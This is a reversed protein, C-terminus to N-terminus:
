NIKIKIDKKSALFTQAISNTSYVSFNCRFVMMPSGQHSLTLSDAQWHLLCPNSGMDRFIECAQFCSVRRAVVISGTNWLKPIVVVQARTACSSFDMHGLPGHEVVLSAVAIFLRHVAVVSYEWSTAVLSFGTCCHLGLM